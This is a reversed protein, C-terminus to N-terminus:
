VKIEKDSPQHMVGKHRIEECGGLKPEKKSPLAKRSEESGKGKDNAPPYVVVGSRKCDASFDGRSFM